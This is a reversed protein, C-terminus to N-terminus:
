KKQIIIETDNNDSQISCYRSLLLLLGTMLSAPTSQASSCEMNHATLTLSYNQGCTLESFQASTSNTSLAVMPGYAAEARVTYIQAGASARWYLTAMKSGCDFMPMLSQPICPASSTFVHHLKIIVSAM